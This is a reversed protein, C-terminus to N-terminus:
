AQVVVSGTMKPHMRCFYRYEGPETFRFQFKDNTDLEASPATSQTLFIMATSRPSKTGPKVKTSGSCHLQFTSLCWINLTGALLLTKLDFSALIDAGHHVIMGTVEFSM